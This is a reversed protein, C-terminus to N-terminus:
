RAPTITQGRPGRVLWGTKEHMKQAYARGEGDDWASYLHIVKEACNKEYDNRVWVHRPEMQIAIASIGVPAAELLEDIKNPTDFVTLDIEACGHQITYRNPQRNHRQVVSGMSWLRQEFTDTGGLASAFIDYDRIPFGNDADRPAGGVCFVHTLKLGAILNFVSDIQPPLAKPTYLEPMDASYRPLVQM